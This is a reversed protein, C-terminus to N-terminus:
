GSFQGSSSSLQKKLEAAEAELKLVKSSEKALAAKAESCAKKAAEAEAKSDNCAKQAAEAEAKSIDCAKQAAEANAQAAVLAKRLEEVEKSSSERAAAVVEMKAAELQAAVEMAQTSAKAAAAAQAAQAAAADNKVEQAADAPAPASMAPPSTVAGGSSTEQVADAPAPARKATPSTVAEGSSTEETPTDADMATSIKFVSTVNQYKGNYGGFSLLTVSVGESSIPDRAPVSPVARWEVTARNHTTNHHGPDQVSVGESSIPDRAPVSSVARWAVSGAELTTLDLALLDTCGKVNNGGGVIHWSSGVLAGSHGARPSIKGGTVKAESWVLYREQYGTAAHASRAPPAKGAVKPEEWVLTDMNLTWLDGLTRRHPDEGGFVFLHRGLLAASHGGRTSPGTGEPKINALVSSVTDFVRVPMHTTANKAKTHGGLIVLADRWPTVSHGALAPLPPPVPAPAPAPSPAAGASSTAKIEEPTAPDAAVPAEVGGEALAVPSLSKMLLPSWEMTSTDLKWSDSLYRGSYNGGIVFCSNGIIAAGHEYRPSPKKQGEVPIQTWKGELAYSAAPGSPAAAPVSAAAPSAPGEKEVASLLAYWDPQEEEVTRVFLRMAEMGNMNGLQKWASHKANEVANWKWGGSKTCPGVVAQQELAYLLLQSETSLAKAGPLKMMHFKLTAHFRDPYGLLCTPSSPKADVTYFWSLTGADQWGHAAPSGTAVPLYQSVTM